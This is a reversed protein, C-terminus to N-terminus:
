GTPATRALSKRGLVYGLALFPWISAMLRTPGDFNIFNGRTLLDQGFLEYPTAPLLSALLSTGSLAIMALWRRSEAPLGLAFWLVAAGTLLGYLTAPTLWALAYGPVLFAWSALSKAGVGLLLLVFVPWRTQSRLLERVFLGTALTALLALSAALMHSDIVPLQSLGDLGLSRLSGTAFLTGNPVLQTLLWLGALILGWEGGKDPVIHFRRWRQLAGESSLLNRGISIALLAGLTAGALNCLIDLKSAVRAPMFNQIFELSLSLLGAILMAALLNRWRGFRLAACLVFGLPIYGLVNAIADDLRYRHSLPRFLYELASYDISHWGSMPYLTACIVMLTYSVALYTALPAPGPVSRQPAHSRAGSFAYRACMADPAPKDTGSLMSLPGASDRHRGAQMLRSPNM